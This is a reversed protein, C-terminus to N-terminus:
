SQAIIPGILRFIEEFSLQGDQNRDLSSFIKKLQDQSIPEQNLEACTDDLMKRVEEIELFGNQNQDYKTFTEQVLKKIEEPNKM